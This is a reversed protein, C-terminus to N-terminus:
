MIRWSCKPIFIWIRAYGRGRRKRKLCSAAKWCYCQRMGFASNGSCEPNSCEKTDTQQGKCEAGAQSTNSCKRSRQQTGNSCTVSCRGWPGWDLWIGEVSCFSLSLSVSLSNLQRLCVLWSHRGGVPFLHVFAVCLLYYKTHLRM